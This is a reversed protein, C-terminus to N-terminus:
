REAGRRLLYLGVDGDRAYEVVSFGAAFTAQAITRLQYRWARAKAMDIAKLAEIDAPIQVLM